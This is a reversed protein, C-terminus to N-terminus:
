AIQSLSQSIRRLKEVIAGQSLDERKKLRRIEEVVLWLPARKEISEDGSLKAYSQMFTQQEKPELRMKAFLSGLDKAPDNIETDGYDIFKIEGKEQRVMNNRTYDNMVMRFDTRNFSPENRAKEWIFRLTRDIFRAQQATLNSKTRRVAVELIFDHLATRFTGKKRKKLNDAILGFRANLYQKNHMTALMQPVTLKIEKPTLKEPVSGHIFQKALEGKRADFAFALRLSTKDLQRLAFRERANVRPEYKLAHTPNGNQDHIILTNQIRNTRRGRKSEEALRRSIRAEILEREKIQVQKGKRNRANVERKKKQLDIFYRARNQLSTIKSM